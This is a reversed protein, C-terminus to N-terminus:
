TDTVVLDAVRVSKAPDRVSTYLGVLAPYPDLPPPGSCLLCFYSHRAAPAFTAFATIGDCV